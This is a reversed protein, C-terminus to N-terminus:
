LVREGLKRYESPTLGTIKKFAKNFNATNNYGCSLAIELINLKPEELILGIAMDVRRSNIYDWLTIGSVTHFMASFYNPSMGATKALNSLTLPEALHTDIYYIAQQVLRLRERNPLRIKAAYGHNRLLEILMSNLLSKIQLLYEEKQQEFEKKLSLFLATLCEAQQPAIYGAFDSSHSFCFNYNKASLTDNSHGWLYRPEFQINLIKLGGKEVETICHQENSSFILFGGAQIRSCRGAINYIGAGSLIYGIEFRIHSHQRLPRAGAPLFVQWMKLLESGDRELVAGIPTIM